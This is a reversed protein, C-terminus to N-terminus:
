KSAVPTSAAPTNFLYVHHLNKMSALPATAALTVKTGSLNLYTLQTLPALKALGNGTVVTGELHLARLHIFKGLIQFSADTVATRGLEAEVIYPAFKAFQALQADNFNAAVDVTNLILGDSLKSSVPVLKAGQGSDIQQIEGMMGSYNGVPQLPPDQPATSISIGTLSTASPSAGQQVWARIWAIEEPKLPPKGEAPMFHKDGHPLLVRQLLLSRDANGANIVAGDRGGRMLQEYSDLRLGGQTKSEGHCSVCNADFIPDIQKAYFSDPSLAGTSVGGPAIWHKLPAPMYETLYDSGHTLSGGEHATWVLTALVLTLMAPYAHLVEGSIWAPRTFMCALVGVTLAIAGWMHRTILTGADGSGYALLYGLTLTGICAAFSLWLVFGATERLAPRVRGAIELVPLLVLLGIPLHVALPHFRGLFQEWNAHPKGDLKFVWPLLLLEVSMILAAM